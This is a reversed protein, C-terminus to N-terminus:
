DEGSIRHEVIGGIDVTWINASSNFGVHLKGGKVM